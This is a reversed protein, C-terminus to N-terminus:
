ENIRAKLNITYEYRENDDQGIFNPSSQDCVVSIYGAPIWRNVADYCQDALTYTENRQGKRGRVRITIRPTKIDGSSGLMHDPEPGGASAIFVARDPIQSNDRVGGTFCNSSSLDAVQSILRTRVTAAHDTGM